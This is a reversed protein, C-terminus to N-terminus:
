LASVRVAIYIDNVNTGTPGTVVLGGENRFFTASDNERLCAVADMGADRGREISGPDAIAGAANASGDDGDSALSALVWDDDPKLDIAAALVAETNRGGSGKGSVQVTAEGGGLLVDIDASAARTDRVMLRGLGAADGDYAEWQLQSRLGDAEVRRQLERVLTENDAIVSWIDDDGSFSSESTAEDQGLLARVREPVADWVRFRQVVDKAGDASSVSRITPGSAIVKPDNGLVDSLLLSVCRAEGIQRRLGGAKVASLVSRVANLDQIGAGAHMLTTTTEQMDELTVPHRPRELLASGGGSILAIVIDDGNLGDVMQLIRDTARVGREDPVPHSAEFLDFGAIEGDLQGEKTLVAGRDIRDGLIDQAGRAMASAAKGIAIVVVRAGPSIEVRQGDVTLCSGDLKVARQVARRPEVVRLAEQFWATIKRQALEDRM